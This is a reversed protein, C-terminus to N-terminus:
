HAKKWLFGKRSTGAQLYVLCITARDDSTTATNPESVEVVAPLAELLTVVSTFGYVVPDFLSKKEFWLQYESIVSSLPLKFEEQVLLLEQLDKSLELLKGVNGGTLLSM